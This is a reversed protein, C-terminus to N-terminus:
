SKDLAEASAYNRLVKLTRDIRQILRDDASKRYSSILNEMDLVLNPQLNQSQALQSVAASIRYRVHLRNIKRGATLILVDDGRQPLATVVSALALTMIQDAEDVLSQRSVNMRLVEAGMSRALENRRQIRRERDPEEDAALYEDRLTLLTQPIREVEPSTPGATVAASALVDAKLQQTEVVGELVDVRSSLEVGERTLKVPTHPDAIRKQVAQFIAKFEHRLIILILLVTLPWAIDGILSVVESSSV